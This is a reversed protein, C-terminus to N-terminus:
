RKPPLNKILGADTEIARRISIDQIVYPESEYSMTNIPTITSGSLEFVTWLTGGQNTPVNFVAVLDSGRYVRVQAGSNSLEM